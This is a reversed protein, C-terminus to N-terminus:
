VATRATRDIVARVLWPFLRHMTHTWRAGAGPIIHFRGAAAGRLLAHAVTEATLPKVTGAIARLEAPQQGREEALGPTDTDPPFVISVSVGHPRLEQRLADAFGALAFKSAAYGTYGYIGLLGALSSVLVVRGRREAMFHPLFARTAWVAGFYNTGMMSEFDAEALEHVRGPRVIGANNILVDLGGLGELVKPAMASVASADALDVAVRGFRQEDSVALGRLEAVTEDLLASRRGAIWVSAGAAALM